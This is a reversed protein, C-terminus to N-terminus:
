REYLSVSNIPQRRQAIGRPTRDELTEGITRARDALKRPLQRDAARGDRLV